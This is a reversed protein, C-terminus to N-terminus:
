VAVRKVKVGGNVSMAQVASSVEDVATMIVCEIDPFAEKLKQLIDMGSLHPMILDLLVLHFHNKGVLEIVRRSDSVIAPEPMGTSVLTTKISLLLGADDDVVLIPTKNNPISEM